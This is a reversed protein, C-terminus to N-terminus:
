ATLEGNSNSQALRQELSKLAEEKALLQQRKEAIERQVKFEIDRLKEEERKLQEEKIRVAQTAMEESGVSYDGNSTQGVRSLSETRYNEYHLDTTIEKLDGLHTSCATLVNLM